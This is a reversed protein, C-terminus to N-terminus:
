LVQLYMFLRAHIDRYRFVNFANTWINWLKPVYPDM